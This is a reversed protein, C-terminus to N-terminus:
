QLGVRPHSEASPSVAAERGAPQVPIISEDFSRDM